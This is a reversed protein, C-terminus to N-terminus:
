ILLERTIIDYLAVDSKFLNFWDEKTWTESFFEPHELLWDSLKDLSEFVPTTPSGDGTTEWLQFGDGNPPDHKEWKEYAEKISLDIGEGKCLACKGWEKELGSADMILFHADYAYGSTDTGMSGKKEFEKVYREADDKLVEDIKEESIFHSSYKKFNYLTNHGMEKGKYKYHFLETIYKWLANHAANYGDECNPCPKFHPNLYGKWTKNLKWDFDLPVRKVHRNTMMM